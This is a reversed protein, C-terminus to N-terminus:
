PPISSGAARGQVRGKWAGGRGSWDSLASAVTMACYLLAAAPLLPALALPQRYLRLTPSIALSMLLWAAAALAAAVGNGHWAYALLVLPPALYVGAMGLLTLALM